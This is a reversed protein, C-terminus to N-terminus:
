STLTVSVPCCYRTKELSADVNLRDNVWRDLFFSGAQTEEQANSMVRILDVCCDSRQKIAELLIVMREAVFIM